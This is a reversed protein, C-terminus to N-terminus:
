ESKIKERYACRYLSSVLEARSRSQHCFRNMKTRTCLTYSANVTRNETVIVQFLRLGHCSTVSCISAFLASASCFKRRM